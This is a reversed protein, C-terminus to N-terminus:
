MYKEAYGFIASQKRVKLEDMTKQEYNMFIASSASGLPYLLLASHEGDGSASM